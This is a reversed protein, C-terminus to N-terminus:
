AVRNWADSQLMEDLDTGMLRNAYAGIAKIAVFLIIELLQSRDYGADLMQQVDAEEVDGNNRVLKATFDHLVELKSDELHKGIRLNQVEQEPMGAMKAFATHAAVCYPCANERAVALYIINQEEGSFGSQAIQGDLALYGQLTVPSTALASLCNPVFGNREKIAELLPRSAKPATATDHILYGNRM